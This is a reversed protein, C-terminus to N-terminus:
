ILIGSLLVWTDSSQKFIETSTSTFTRSNSVLSPKVVKYIFFTFRITIINIYDLCNVLSNRANCKLKFWGCPVSDKNSKFRTLKINNCTLNSSISFAFLFIKERVCRIEVTKRNNSKLFAACVNLVCFIQVSFSNSSRYSTVICCPKFFVILIRFRNSRRHVLRLLLDPRREAIRVASLFVVIGRFIFHLTRVKLAYLMLKLLPNVM